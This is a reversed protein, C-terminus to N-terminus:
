KFMQRIALDLSGRLDSHKGVRIKGKKADKAATGERGNRNYAKGEALDDVTWAVCFETLVDVCVSVGRRGAVWSEDSANSEM